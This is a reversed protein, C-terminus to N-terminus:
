RKVEYTIDLGEHEGVGCLERLAALCTELADDPAVPWGILQPSDPVRGGSALYDKMPEIGRAAFLARARLEGEGGAPRFMMHLSPEGDWKRLEFGGWARSALSPAGDAKLFDPGFDNRPRFSLTTQRKKSALLRQVYPAVREPGGVSYPTPDKVREPRGLRIVNGEEDVVGMRRYSRTTARPKRTRLWVFTAVGGVGLLVFSWRAM